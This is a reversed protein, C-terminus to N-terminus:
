SGMEGYHRIVSLAAPLEDDRILDVISRGDTHASPATLFDLRVWDSQIPVAAFASLVERIEPRIGDESLQFAPYRQGDFDVALLRGDARAKRVGAETIRLRAAVESTSLTPITEILRRKMEVGRAVAAAEPDAGALAPNAEPLRSLMAALSGAGTQAASAIRLLELPAQDALADVAAHMRERLPELVAARERTHAPKSPKPSEYRYTSM